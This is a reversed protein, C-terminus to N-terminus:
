SHPRVSVTHRDRCRWGTPSECAGFTHRIFLSGLFTQLASLLHKYDVFAVIRICPRYVDGKPAQGLAIRFKRYARVIACSRVYNNLVLAFLSPRVGTSEPPETATMAQGDNLRILADSTSYSWAGAANNAFSGYSGATATQAVVTAATADLDTLTLTVGTIRRGSPQGAHDDGSPSGFRTAGIQATKGTPM